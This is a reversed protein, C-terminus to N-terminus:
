EKKDNLYMDKGMKIASKILFAAGAESGCSNYIIRTLVSLFDFFFEVTRTEPYLALVEKSLEKVKKQFFLGRGMADLEKEPKM